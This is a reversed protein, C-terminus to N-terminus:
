SARRFLTQYRAHEASPAVTTDWWVMRDVVTFGQPQVLDVLEDPMYVQFEIRDSVGNGYDIRTRLRGEELRRTTEVGAENRPSPEDANRELWGPHYMDLVLSGNARLARHLGALTIRDGERGAFGISNWLVLAGDFRWPLRGIHRQDLALYSPGPAVQRARRLAAANIDIGTVAYGRAALRGAVRGVGCGVDLLSGHDPLPLLATLADVERDVIESPITSSFTDFWELSYM